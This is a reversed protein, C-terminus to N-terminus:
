SSLLHLMWVLTTGLFGILLNALKIEM